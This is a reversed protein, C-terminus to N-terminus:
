HPCTQKRQATAGNRSYDDNFLPFYLTEPYWFMKSATHKGTLRKAKPRMRLGSQCLSRASRVRCYICFTHVQRGRPILIRDTNAINAPVRLNKGESVYSKEPQRYSYCSSIRCSRTSSQGLSGCVLNQQFLCSVAVLCGKQLQVVSVPFWNKTKSVPQQTRNFNSFVNRVVAKETQNALRLVITRLSSRQFSVQIRSRPVQGQFM